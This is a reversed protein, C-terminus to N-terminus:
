DFYTNVYWDNVGTYQCILHFSAGCIFAAILIWLLEKNPTVLLSLFMMLVFILGICLAEILVKRFTKM